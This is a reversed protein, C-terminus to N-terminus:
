SAPITINVPWLLGCQHGDLKADITPYYFRAYVIDDAFQTTPTAVLAAGVVKSNATQSFATGFNGTATTIQGYFKVLNNAYGADNSTALTPNVVIPVRIFDRGSGDLGNYYAQGSDYTQDFDPPTLSSSTTNVFEFYMAGIKYQSQGALIRALVEAGGYLTENHPKTQTLTVEGTSESVRCIELPGGFLDIM